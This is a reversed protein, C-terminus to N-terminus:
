GNTVRCQLMKVFFYFQMYVRQPKLPPGRTSQTNLILVAKSRFYKNQSQGRRKSIDGNPVRPKKKLNTNSRLGNGDHM